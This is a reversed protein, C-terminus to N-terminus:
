TDWFTNDFERIHMDVTKYTMQSYFKPYTPSSMVSFILSFTVWQSADGISKQSHHMEWKAVIDVPQSKGLWIVLWGM